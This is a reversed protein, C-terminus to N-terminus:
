ERRRGRAFAAVSRLGKLVNPYGRSTLMSRQVALNVAFLAVSLLGAILVGLDRGRRSRLLGSLATLLARSGIVCLCLEIGLAVLGVLWSLPNTAVATVAGLLVIGTVVPGIGTCAAALLGRALVAPRLPLLALRAPDLTEDVGFTTVPLVLWGLLFGTFASIAIAAASRGHQAALFSFALSTVPLAILLALLLGVLRTPGGAGRLGGLILSLKLRIFLRAM